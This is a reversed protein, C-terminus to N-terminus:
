RFLDVVSSSNSSDPEEAGCLGSPASHRGPEWHGPLSSLLRRRPQLQLRPGGGGERGSGDGQFRSALDLGAERRSKVQGAASGAGNGPTRGNGMRVGPTHRTDKLASVATGEWIVLCSQWAPPVRGQSIEAESRGEWESVM